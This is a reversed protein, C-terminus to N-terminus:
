EVGKYYLGRTFGGPAYNGLGLYRRMVSLCEVANETTFLLREAWLGIASTDQRKDAMFLKKSNLLVNRCGFARVVPFSAGKRDKLGSFNDCVCVGMSNKIICNETYMLPLRGYTIIETDVGKSIDRIQELRLEFSLTASKLGLDKMVRLSQSNFINLGFDGRVTFGVRAAAVIQGLNGTLVDPIGLDHAIALMEALKRRESDHTVRPLAAAVTVESDRLFPELAAAGEELEEAPVYLVSPKLAALESSLQSLKSVQVTIVPPEDRNILHFGPAFEGVTREELYRRKEMLETLLTRRMENISAVPLALGQEVTCKAGVCHFPTGGTKHLQTQLEAATLERHFAIEPAAGLTVATNGRDDAAAIKAPAGARV